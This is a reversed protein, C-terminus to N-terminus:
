GLSHQFLTYFHKLIDLFQAVTHPISSPDEFERVHEFNKYLRVSKKLCTKLWVKRVILIRSLNTM